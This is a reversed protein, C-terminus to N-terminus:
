SCSGAYACRIMDGSSCLYCYPLSGYDCKGQECCYSSCSADYYLSTDMSHGCNCENGSCGQTLCIAEARQAMVCLALSTLVLVYKLRDVVRAVNALVIPNM